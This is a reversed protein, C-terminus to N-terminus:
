EIFSNLDLAEEFDMRRAFEEWGRLQDLSARAKAEMVGVAEAGFPIRLPLSSVQVQTLNQAKALDVIGQAARKPDGPQRGHSATHSSQLKKRTDAYDELGQVSLSGEKNDESLISTRFRGLVLVHVRIGFHKVERDLCEAAGVRIM